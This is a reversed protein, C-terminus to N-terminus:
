SYKRKCQEDFAKTMNNVIDKMFMESVQNYLSNKFEFEVMFTVWCHKPDRAPSFRWESVLKEFLQTQHSEARVFKPKEMTVISTYRENFLQFGVVLDAEVYNSGVTKMIISDKVWPVFDKYTKVDSVVDFCEEMTHVM